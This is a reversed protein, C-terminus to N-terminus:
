PVELGHSRAILVLARDFAEPPACVRDAMREGRGVMDVGDEAHDSAGKLNGARLTAMFRRADILPPELDARAAPARALCGELRSTVQAVAATMRRTRERASLRPALPDGILVLETLTRLERTRDTDQQLASLYRRARPYDNLQFSAEAAGALAAPDDPDRNLVRAFHEAARQADGAAFLMKAAALQSAADDPLGAELVLLESLARDREGHALLFEILEVRVKRRAPRQEPKWLEVIATQYYRGATTPDGRRAELRALELNTDADDPERERLELLVQRAADDQRGTMLARALALRYAPTDSNKTAARRLDAVATDLHGDRLATLGSEYWARADQRRMTDNSAALRRTGAFLAVTVVILVALIVIERHIYRYISQNECRLCRGAALAGGCAPCTHPAVTM